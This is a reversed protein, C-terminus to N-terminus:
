KYAVVRSDIHTKQHVNSQTEARSFGAELFLRRMSEASYGWKHLMTPDPYRASDGYIGSITRKILRKDPTWFCDPNSVVEQCM